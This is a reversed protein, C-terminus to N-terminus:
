FLRNNRRAWEFPDLAGKRLNCTICLYQLNKIFNSGGISIPIIHDLHAIKEEGSPKISICCKCEVCKGGQRIMLNSIEKATHSGVALRRKAKQNTRSAKIKEPNDKAWKKADLLYKGMSRFYTDSKHKKVKDPNKKKYERGYESRYEKNDERWKFVRDKNKVRWQRMKENDLAASQESRNKRWRKNTEKTKEKDRKRNKNKLLMCQVCQGTAVYRELTHNKSCPKETYYRSLGLEFHKSKQSLGSITPM